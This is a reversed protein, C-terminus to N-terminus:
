ALCVTAIQQVETGQGRLMRPLLWLGAAVAVLTFPVALLLGTALAARARSPSRAVFYAIAETLGFSGLTVLFWPWAQAAALQGRGEPGLLRAALMGTVLGVVALAGNAAATSAFPRVDLGSPWFLEPLRLRM